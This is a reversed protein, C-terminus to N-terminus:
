SSPQRSPRQRPPAHLCCNHDRPVSAPRPCPRPPAPHSAPPQGPPSRPGPAAPHLCPHIRLGGATSCSPLRRPAPAPPGCRAVVSERSTSSMLWQAALFLLYKDARFQLHPLWYCISFLISRLALVPAWTLLKSLALALMGYLRVSHERRVLAREKQWGAPSPRAPPRRYPNPCPAPQPIGCRAAAGGRRGVVARAAAVVGAISSNLGYYCGIMTTFYLLSLRM